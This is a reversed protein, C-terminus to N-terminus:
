KGSPFPPLTKGSGASPGWIKINDVKGTDDFSGFGIFGEGFTKDEAVMIPITMDDFYVKISGDSLKREIRVKHWINLGWNVGATTTKAINTRPKDNVIFVNHANPDAKTAIHVYYFQSPKQFGFFLCMDRHGYEEGTQILDAELIFDGFTKEKILAINEPSRVEPKYKSRAALELAGGSKEDKSYKWAAPDTMQFGKISDAKEFTQEYLLQYGKPLHDDAAWAAHLLAAALIIIARKM